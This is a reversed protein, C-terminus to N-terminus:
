FRSAKWAVWGCTMAAPIELGAMGLAIALNHPSASTLVDFWADLVFLPIALLAVTQTAPRGLRLLLGTLALGAAELVDVGIWILTRPNMGLYTSLSWARHVAPASDNLGFSVTWVALAVAAVMLATGVLRERRRDRERSVLWRGLSLGARAGAVEGRAVSVQDVM